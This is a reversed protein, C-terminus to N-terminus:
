FFDECPVGDRDADLGTNGAMLSALADNYSSFSSCTRTDRGPMMVPVMVGGDSVVSGAPRAINRGFSFDSWLGRSKAIARNGARLIKRNCLNAYKEFVTAYGRKVMEFGVNLGDGRMVEAVTRGYRDNNKIDLSVRTRGGILGTLVDQSLQGFPRESMEPADICAIRVTLSRGASSVKITDGDIIRDVAFRAM